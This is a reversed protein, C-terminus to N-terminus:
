RTSKQAAAHRRNSMILGIPMAILIVLVLLMFWILTWSAKATQISWTLLLMAIALGAGGLSVLAASRRWRTKLGTGVMVGANGLNYIIFAATALGVQPQNLRQWGIALGFQTLGVVLVLYASLWSKFRSPQKASFAALLGGAAVAALGLGSFIEM